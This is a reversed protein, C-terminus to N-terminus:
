HFSRSFFYQVFYDRKWLEFSYQYFNLLEHAWQCQQLEHEFIATKVISFSDIELCRPWKKGDDVQSIQHIFNFGSEVNIVQIALHMKWIENKNVM